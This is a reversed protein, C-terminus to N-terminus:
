LDMTCDTKMYQATRDHADMQETNKVNLLLNHDTCWSAMRSIEQRYNLENDDKISGVVIIDDTYKVILCCNSCPTYAKMYLTFLQPSIVSGKRTTSTNVQLTSSSAGNVSIFQTHHGLFSFVWNCLVPPVRMESLKNIM